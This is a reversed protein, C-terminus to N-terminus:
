GHGDGKTLLARMERLDNMGESFVSVLTDLLASFKVADVAVLQERILMEKESPEEGSARFTKPVTTHARGPTVTRVPSAVATAATARSAPAIRGASADANMKMLADYVRTSVQASKGNRISGITMATIGTAKSVANASWGTALLSQLASRAETLKESPTHSKGAPLVEGKKISEDRTGVERMPFSSVAPQMEVAAPKEEPRAPEKRTACSFKHFSFSYLDPNQHVLSTKVIEKFTKKHPVFFLTHDVHGFALDLFDTWHFGIDSYRFTPKPSLGDISLPEHTWVSNGFLNKGIEKPDFSIGAPTLIFLLVADRYEPDRLFQISTNM